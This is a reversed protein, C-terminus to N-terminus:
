GSMREALSVVNEGATPYMARLRIVEDRTRRDASIGLYHETIAVSSHHLMSQVLRLAGDYGQGALQDFLARAGSRRITHAGEGCPRGAADTTPFGIKELIPTVIRNAPGIRQDPFYAFEHSIIRGREGRESGISYRRPILHDHGQGQYITMWARLERDLEASVPMTDETGSKSIVMRLWGGDRDWDQVRLTAVEQDRALTYLYLAVLARDRPDQAGAVDLLHPFQGVPIRNREKHTRKPKRRGRLPDKDLPMKKTHRCWEFFQGLVTHDLRLTHSQRTASVKAFYNTVHRDEISHCYVNGTVALFKNLITKENALTRKSYDQSTRWSRYEEIADSLEQRM